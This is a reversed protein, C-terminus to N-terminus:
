FRGSNPDEEVIGTNFAQSKEKENVGQKLLTHGRPHLKLTKKRNEIESSEDGRIQSDGVQM